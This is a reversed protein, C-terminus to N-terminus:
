IYILCKLFFLYIHWLCKSLKYNLTCPICEMNKYTKINLCIPCKKLILHIHFAPVNQYNITSHAHFVNQIRTYKSIWIYWVNKSILHIHCVNQYNTTSHAHFVNQIRYKTDKLIWIFCINKFSMIQIKYLCTLM